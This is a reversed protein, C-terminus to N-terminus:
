IYDCLQGAEQEHVAHGAVEVDLGAGLVVVEVGGQGVHRVDHMIQGKARGHRGLVPALQVYAIKQHKPPKTHAHTHTPPSQTTHRNPNLYISKM